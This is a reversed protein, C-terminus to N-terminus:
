LTSRSACVFCGRWLTRSSGIMLCAWVLLVLVVQNLLLRQSIHQLDGDGGRTMARVFEPQLRLSSSLPCM